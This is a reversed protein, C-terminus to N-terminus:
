PCFPALPTAKFPDNQLSALKNDSHFVGMFSTLFHSVCLCQTNNPFHNADVFDNYSSPDHKVHSTM